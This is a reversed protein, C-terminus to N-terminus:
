EPPQWIGLPSAIWFSNLTKPPSIHESSGPGWSTMFYVTYSKHKLGKTKFRKEEIEAADLSPGFRCQPLGGMGQMAPRSAPACSPALVIGPASRMGQAHSGQQGIPHVWLQLQKFGIIFLDTCSIRCGGPGILIQKFTQVRVLDSERIPGNSESQLPWTETNSTTAQCQKAIRCCVQEACIPLHPSHTRMMHHM